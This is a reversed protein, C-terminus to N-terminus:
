DTEISEGGSVIDAPSGPPRNKARFNSAQSSEVQLREAFSQVAALFSSSAVVMVDNHGAQNEPVM